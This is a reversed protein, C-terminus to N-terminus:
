VAARMSPGPRFREAVTWPAFLRPDGGLRQMADLMPGPSLTGIVSAANPRPEAAIEIGLESLAREILEAHKGRQTISAAGFGAEFVARVAARAHSLGTFRDWEAAGLTRCPQGALTRDLETAACRFADRVGEHDAICEYRRLMELMADDRVADPAYRQIVWGNNRVLRGLIVGFDRNSAVKRHLVRFAPEFAIRYGAAIIRAALDYEEAYYNFSPDYGGLTLFLETRVAVGCGVPVEPLGGSERRGNPLTIDATIAGVDVPAAILRDLFRTDVPQSDDDLMVLWDCRSGPGPGTAPRNAAVRAADNRAAAGRNEDLRIVEAPICTQEHHISVPLDSANDAVIIEAGGVAAHDGLARIAAVTRALEEHRDRTPIIYAIM